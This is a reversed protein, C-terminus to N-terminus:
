TTALMLANSTAYSKEMEHFHLPVVISVDYVYQQLAM